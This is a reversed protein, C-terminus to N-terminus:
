SAESRTATIARLTATQIAKVANVLNPDNGYTLVVRGAAEIARAEERTLAFGIYKEDSM